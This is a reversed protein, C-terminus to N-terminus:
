SLGSPLHLYSWSTALPRGVHKPAVAFMYLSQIFLNLFDFGTAM